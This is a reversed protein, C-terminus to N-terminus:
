EAFTLSSANKSILELLEMYDGTVGIKYTDDVLAVNSATKMTVGNVTILHEDDDNYFAVLHGSKEIVEGIAFKDIGYKQFFESGRKKQVGAITSYYKGNKKIVYKKAGLTKFEEYEGDKEFVGLYFRNGNEDDAFAGSEIAEAKLRDNLIKIADLHKEENVFKCSDTDVYVLDRGVLNMFDHLRKRANSTVWLAWQYPLFSSRKKYFTNLLQQIDTKTTNYGTAGSGTYITLEQDIAMAMCGYLSNIRNKSRNYMYVSAADEKGDLLTKQQFYKMCVNRYEEPLKGKRAAYIEILRIECDYEKVLIDMDLDTCWLTIQRARQIRGNDLVKDPSFYKTKSLSIYPMFHPAVCKCNTLLVHLLFCYQGSERFRKFTPKTIKIFKSMPFDDIVICAPYCSKIDYSVVNKVVQNAFRASAHTDGGRFASRMAKYEYENLASDTFMKRNAKNKRMEIRAERRVYGTSTLPITALTDFRMRSLICECLGRVDNYCYSKEENTLETESTRIKRYDYTDVMKYYTANEAKCFMSLSMNSLAYSCRFEVADDHVIKLPKREEKCFSDTVNLFKRMFQMEFSLDHCYVVLRTGKGLNMNVIMYKMFRIFEDWTRGFIVRYGICFQWHYMFAFPRKDTDIRGKKKGDAYRRYITTTEIDFACPIELYHIKNKGKSVSENCSLLIETYPIESYHYVPVSVTGNVTETKITIM